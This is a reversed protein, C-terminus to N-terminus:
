QVTGVDLEVTVRAQVDGKDLVEREGEDKQGGSVDRGEDSLSPNIKTYGPPILDGFMFTGLRGSRGCTDHFDHVQVKAPAFELNLHRLSAAKGFRFVQNPLIDHRAERIQGLLVEPFQLRLLRSLGVAIGVALLCLELRLYLINAATDLSGTCQTYCITDDIQDFGSLGHTSSAEM